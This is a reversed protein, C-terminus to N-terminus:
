RTRMLVVNVHNKQNIMESFGQGDQREGGRALKHVTGNSKNTTRTTM